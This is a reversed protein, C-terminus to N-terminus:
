ELRAARRLTHNKINDFLNITYSSSGTTVNNYIISLLQIDSFTEDFSDLLKLTNFQKEIISNYLNVMNHYTTDYISENNIVGLTAIYKANAMNADGVPVVKGSDNYGNGDILFTEGNPLLIKKATQENVTLTGTKDSAIVTCSGLSEVSNLKKM